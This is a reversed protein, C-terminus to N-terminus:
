ADYDQIQQRGQYQLTDVTWRVSKQCTLIAPYGIALPPPYPVAIGCARLWLHRAHINGKHRSIDWNKHRGKKQNQKHKRGEPLIDVATPGFRLPRRRMVAILVALLLYCM